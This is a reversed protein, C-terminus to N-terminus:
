PLCHQVADRFAQGRREFNEFQDFSACAPALLVAAEPLGARRAAAAAQGVATEVDGSITFPVKGDLTKAFMEAAEGILFAHRIKTFYPALPEIGGAKAQGGAIWFIDDFCALSRAAADANTAKSDNIFLIAGDRAV